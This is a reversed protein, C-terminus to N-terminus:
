QLVLYGRNYTVNFYYVPPHEVFDLYPEYRKIAEAHVQEPLQMMDSIVFSVDPAPDEGGSFSISPDLKDEAEMRELGDDAAAFSVASADDALLQPTMAGDVSFLVLGGHSLRQRLTPNASLIEDAAFTLYYDRSDAPLITSLTEPTLAPRSMSQGAGKRYLASEAVYSDASMPFFNEERGNDDQSFLLVPEYKQILSLKDM